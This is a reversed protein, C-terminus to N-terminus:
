VPLLNVEEDVEFSKSVNHHKVIMTYESRTHDKNNNNAM